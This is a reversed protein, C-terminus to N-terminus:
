PFLLGDPVPAPKASVPEKQAASGGSPVTAVPPAAVPPTAFPPTAVPPTAVPPTAVPPAAASPADASSALVTAAVLQSELRGTADAASANGANQLSIDDASAEVPLLLAETEARQEGSFEKLVRMTSTDIRRSSFTQVEVRRNLAKGKETKNSAIPVTPGKGDYTLKEPPLRLKEMLYRGVSKARAMSLAHNDKYIGR